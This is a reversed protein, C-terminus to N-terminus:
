SDWTEVLVGDDGQGPPPAGTTGPPPAVTDSPARQQAQAQAQAQADLAERYWVPFTQGAFHRRQAIGIQGQRFASELSLRRERVTGDEALIPEVKLQAEISLPCLRKGMHNLVQRGAGPILIRHARARDEGQLLEFVLAGFDDFSGQEPEIFRHHGLAGTLLVRNLFGDRRPLKRDRPILYDISAKSVGQQEQLEAVVEEYSAFPNESISRHKRMANLIARPKPVSSVSARKIFYAELWVRHENAQTRESLVHCKVEFAVGPPPCRLHPAMQIPIAKEENSSQLLLVSGDEERRAYGSLWVYNRCGNIYDSTEVAMESDSQFSLFPELTCGDVIKHLM